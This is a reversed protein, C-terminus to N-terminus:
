KGGDAQGYEAPKQYFSGGRKTIVNAQAQKEAILVTNMITRIEGPLIIDKIGVNGLEVPYEKEIQKIKESLCSALEERRDLLEDLKLRGM